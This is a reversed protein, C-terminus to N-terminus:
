NEHIELVFAFRGYQYPIYCPRHAGIIIHDSCSPRYLGSKTDWPLRSYCFQLWLEAGVENELWLMGERFYIFVDICEAPECITLVLQEIAGLSMHLNAISTLILAM